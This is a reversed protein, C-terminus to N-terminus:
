KNERPWFDRTDDSNPDLGCRPCPNAPAVFALVQERTFGQVLEALRDAEHEDLKGADGLKAALARAETVGAPEAPEFGVTITTKSFSSAECDYVGLPLWDQEKLDDEALSAAAKLDETSQLWLTNGNLNGDRNISVYAYRHEANLNAGLDCDPHLEFNYWRRVARLIKEHDM